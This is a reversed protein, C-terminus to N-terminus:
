SKIKYSMNESYKQTPYEYLQQTNNSLMTCIFNLAKDFSMLAGDRTKTM